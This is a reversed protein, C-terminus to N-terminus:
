KEKKLIMVQFVALAKRVEQTISNVSLTAGSVARIGRKPWLTDDLVKDTFQEFWRKPPLYEEPEYFALIEVSKLSGDPNIVVMYVEPKTRVIHSGFIAYGLIVQGIKGTYFTFIKSDVKVKAVAEVKKQDESDLFVTKKEITGAEPFALRLAKEKTQYVKAFISTAAWLPLMVSIWLVILAKM